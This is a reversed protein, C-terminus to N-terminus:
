PNNIHSQITKNRDLTGWFLNNTNARGEIAFVYTSNGVDYTSINQNYHPLPLKVGSLNTIIQRFLTAHSVKSLEISNFDSMSIAFFVHYHDDVFSQASENIHTLLKINNALKEYDFPFNRIRTPGHDGMFIIISSPDKRKILNAIQLIQENGTRIRHQFVQSNVWDEKMTYNYTNDSPTHQAIDLYYVLLQPKHDKSNKSLFEKIVQIHSTKKKSQKSIFFPEIRKRIHTNLDLFPQILSLQKNLKVDTNDLLEGQEFFFYPDGDTFFNTTYGNDKFIKFLLNQSNGGIIKRELTSVDLNGFAGVRLDLTFLNIVSGLTFPSNSYVDDKVLFNLKQLSKIFTSSDYGFIKNVDDLNQYSECLFFYINPKKTFTINQNSLAQPSYDKGIKYEYGLNYLTTGLALCIQAVLLYNAFKYGRLLFIIICITPLIFTFYWRINFFCARIISSGLVCLCIGVAIGYICAFVTYRFPNYLSPDPLLELLFRLIAAVSIVICVSFVLSNVSYYTLNNSWLFLCPAVIALPFTWTWDKKSCLQKLPSNKIPTLTCHTLVANKLLSYVNNFTWYLVLGSAANYLLVLFIAAMGYLQYKDRKSLNQTYILASGINIVTMLIPMVNIVFGGITFLEDPKSLDTLGLFSIGQFPEFNSLLHYAAFFFPIQLFFGISSRLTLFPSYGAQRHMTTIMAFREQGKFTRKIMAEDNEFSKRISREEEQWHEAKLYIPLIVTNVVISMIIIAWGWNGTLEYGWSLAKDMGFELPAIFLTYIFDLM